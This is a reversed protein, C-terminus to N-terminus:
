RESWSAVFPLGAKSELRAEVTAQVPLGAGRCPCSATSVVTARGDQGRAVEVKVTSRGITLEEGSWAADQALRVRATEVGGEAAALAESRGRGLTAEQAARSTSGALSATLTGIVVVLLMAVILAAGREPHHNQPKM